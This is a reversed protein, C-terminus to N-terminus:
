AIERTVDHIWKKSRIRFFLMIVKAAGEFVICSYVAAIGTKLVLGCIAAIPLYFVYLTSVDIVMFAKVDGGGRLVGVGMTLGLTRVPAAIALVVLITAANRAAESSLDFFPFILPELVTYRVTIILASSFLGLLLGLTILSNAVSSIREQRGAGIEKGIIVATANGCAFITVSLLREINGAINYGALITQAGVMHGLIVPFLMAGFGWLAENLMVPMSYKIFDKFILMGPMILLKIKLPLRKNRFAYITIIIVEVARACLTSLAAGQMGLAPMGLNGFIFVWNGFINFISSTLLVAVGLRANEMSRQCSIYLISIANLVMSFGAIRVYPVGLMALSSDNTVLSLIQYPFIAILVAGTVTAALAFFLGVGLVRNIANKNGKGWYQAVLIGAGSQVGFMYIMFLFLPTTSLTAAALYEEGLMGVMFTDALTVTQSIINQLIMPIMLAFVGKYFGKPQQLVNTMTMGKKM